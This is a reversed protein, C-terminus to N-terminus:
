KKPPEPLPMWHTVFDGYHNWFSDFKAGFGEFVQWYDHSVKENIMDYVIYEGGSEPLADKVSIWEGM